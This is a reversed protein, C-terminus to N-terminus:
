GEDEDPESHYDLAISVVTQSESNVYTSISGNHNAVISAAFTLGLGKQKQKSSVYPLISDQDIVSHHDAHLNAVDIRIADREDMSSDLPGDQWIGAYVNIKIKSDFSAESANKILCDIATLLLEADVKGILASETKIELWNKNEILFEFRARNEQILNSINTPFLKLFQNGGLAQFQKNLNNCSECAQIIQDIAERSDANKTSDSLREANLLIIAAFNNIDHSYAKAFNRLHTPFVSSTQTRGSNLAIPSTPTAPGTRNQRATFVLAFRLVAALLSSTVAFIFM